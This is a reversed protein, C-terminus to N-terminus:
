QSRGKGHWLENHGGPLVRGNGDVDSLREAGDDRRRTVAVTRGCGECKEPTTVLDVQRSRTMTMVWVVRGRVAYADLGSRSGLADDM